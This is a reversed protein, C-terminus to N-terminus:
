CRLLHHTRLLDRAELFPLTSFPSDASGLDTQTSCSSAEAVDLFHLLSDFALHRQLEAQTNPSTALTSAFQHQKCPCGPCKPDDPRQQNDPTHTHKASTAHHQCCCPRTTQDTRGASRVFDLFRGTTCCCLWPGAATTITLILVLGAHVM